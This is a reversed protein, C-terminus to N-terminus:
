RTPTSPANGGNAEGTAANPSAAPTVPQARHDPSPAAQPPAVPVPSPQPPPTEAPPQRELPFIFPQAVAPDALSIPLLLIGIAALSLRLREEWVNSSDSSLNSQPDYNSHASASGGFAMRTPRTPASTPGLSRRRPSTSRRRPRRGHDGASHSNPTCIRGSGLAVRTPPRCRLRPSGRRHLNAGAVLDRGHCHIRQGRRPRSLRRCSPWPKRRSRHSSALPKRPCRSQPWAGWWRQIRPM